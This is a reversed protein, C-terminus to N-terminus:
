YKEKTEQITNDVPSSDIHRFLTRYIILAHKSVKLTGHIFLQTTQGGEYVISRTINNRDSM